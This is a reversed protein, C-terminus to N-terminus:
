FPLSQLSTALSLGIGFSMVKYQYLPKGPVVFATKEKSSETLPNQLFADKFDIGSIIHTDNLRSLLGNIHLLPYSDKKTVANLKRSDFCLRVKGSKTINIVPFCWLSNSEEIVGM